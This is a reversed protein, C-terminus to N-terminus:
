EWMLRECCFSFCGSSSRGRRWMWVGEGLRQSFCAVCLFFFVYMLFLIMLWKMPSRLHNLPVSPLYYTIKVGLVVWRLGGARRM